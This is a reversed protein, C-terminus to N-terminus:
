RHRCIRGDPEDIVLRAFGPLSKLREPVLHGSASGRGINEAFATASIAMNDLQRIPRITLQRTTRQTAATIIGISTSGEACAWCGVRSSAIRFRPVKRTPM